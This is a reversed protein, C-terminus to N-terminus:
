AAREDESERVIIKFVVGDNENYVEIRGSCHEEVIQKSMYLGLGTGNKKEKTSFYPDFIRELIHPEIGGANDSIEIIYEQDKEYTKIKIMPDKPQHELLAEQANHLINLMVQTLESKYTWFPTEADLDQVLEIKKSIISSKVILLTSNIIANLNTQIKEKNPKFFDRFDDITSSLHQSYDSIKQASHIVFEDDLSEMEARLSLSIAAASIANLPQRWQHAIMSIMEGMQALRSQQMIKQDKKRNKEVEEKIRKELSSNLNLIKQQLEKKHTIDRFVVFFINPNKKSPLLTISVDIWVKKKDKREYIWEFDYFSEQQAIAFIEIYKDKSSIGEEQYMPSIDLPDLRLAEEKSNLGLIEVAATNCDIFLNHKVIMMGDSSKEFINKFKNREEEVVIQLKRNRLTYFLVLFLITSFFAIVQWVLTYDIKANFFQDTDFIFDQLEKDKINSTKHKFLEFQKELFTKDISGIKYVTPLILKEIEQAEYELAEKSLKRKYKKLIIDILEKKHSLAYEWGKVSADRFRKVREYHNKIEDDSTFLEMQLNFVGYESPDLINYKIGRKQLKYPQDSIFATMADCERKEFTELNFTHNKFKISSLDVNQSELLNEVLDRPGMLVKNNLDQFTKIEPQTILVMASRKFFSAVLQIPTGQLYSALIYSDLMGYTAKKNVVDKIVDEGFRFEKLTVDLGVDKYFGKEKAAIFGAFEFQYKWHLQLSVKELPELAFLSVNLIIFVILNKIM